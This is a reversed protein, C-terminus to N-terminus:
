SVKAQVGRDVAEVTSVSLGAPKQGATTGVKELGRRLPDVRLKTYRKMTLNIDSHRMLRQATRPDVDNEVLMMHFSTRLCKRELRAMEEDIFNRDGFYPGAYSESACRPPEGILRAARLDKKWTAYTVEGRFVKASRPADAPRIRRLAEAVVGLMPLEAIRGNKSQSADVILVGADFDFNSWRLRAIERFRLGAFGALAYFAAREPPAADLLARMEPQTLFRDPRRRDAEENAVPILGSPIPNTACLGHDTSWRCLGRVAARYANLTRASKNAKRLEALMVGFRKPDADRLCAVGCAKTWAILMAKTKRVYLTSRGRGEIAAIYEDIVELIPRESGRRARVSRRDEMGTRIRDSEAQKEAQLLSADRPTMHEGCRVKQRKGDENIFSYYLTAGRWFVNRYHTPRHDDGTKRKQAM